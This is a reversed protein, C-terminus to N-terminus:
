NKLETSNSTAAYKFTTVIVRDRSEGPRLLLTPEFDGEPIEGNNYIKGPTNIILTNNTITIGGTRNAKIIHDCNDVGSSRGFDKGYLVKKMLEKNVMKKYVRSKMGKTKEQFSIGETGAQTYGGYTYFDFKKFSIFCVPYIKLKNDMSVLCVDAKPEGNTVPVCGVINKYTKDGVKLTKYIKDGLAQNILAIALADSNEKIYQPLKKNLLSPTIGSFESADINSQLLSLLHIDGYFASAQTASTPKRLQNINIYGTVGKIKVKAFFSSGKKVLELSLIEVNTGYSGSTAGQIIQGREKLNSVKIKDNKLVGLTYLYYPAPSELKLFPIEKSKSFPLFVYKYWAASMKGQQVEAMEKFESAGQLLSAM